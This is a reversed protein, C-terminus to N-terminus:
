VKPVRSKERREIIRVDGAPQCRFAVYGHPRLLFARDVYTLGRCAIGEM